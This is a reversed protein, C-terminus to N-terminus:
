HNFKLYKRKERQIRKFFEKLPTIYDKYFDMIEKYSKIRIKGDQKELEKFM